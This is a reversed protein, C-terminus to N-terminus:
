DFTVGPVFVLLLTTYLEIPKTRNVGCLIAIFRSAAIAVVSVRPKIQKVSKGIFISILLLLRCVPSKPIQREVGQPSVVGTVDGMYVLCKVEDRAMCGNGRKEVPNSGLISINGNRKVRNSHTLQFGEPMKSAVKVYDAPAGDLDETLVERSRNNDSSRPQKIILLSTRLQGFKHCIHCANYASLLVSIRTSTERHM